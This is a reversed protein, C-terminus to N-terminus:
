PAHSLAEPPIVAKDVGPGSWSVIIGALGKGQWVEVRLRHKGANLPISDGVEQMAHPGDNTVLLTDGVYLVSGDDSNTYFTYTGDRPVEVYGSFQVMFLERRGNTITDAFAGENPINITAVTSSKIATFSAMNLGTLSIEEQAMEFSKATLGPQTAGPNDPPRSTLPPLAKLREAAERGAKTDRNSGGVFKEYRRRVEFADARNKEMELLRNFERRAFSERVDEMDGGGSFLGSKPVAPKEETKEPPAAVKPGETGTAPKPQETGTAPKPQETGTGPKQEAGRGTNLALPGTGTGTTKTGTGSSATAKTGATEPPRALKGGAEPPKQKQAGHGRTMLFVGLCALVLGAAALGWITMKNSNDPAAAHGRDSTRGGPQAPLTAASRVHAASSRTTARQM